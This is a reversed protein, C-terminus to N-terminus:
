ERGGEAVTVTERCADRVIALISELRHTYTHEHQTRQAAREMRRAADTPNRLVQEALEKAEEPSDYLLLENEEFLEHAAEQNDTILVGGSVPVDFLRQNVATPMQFSTANLHVSNRYISALEIYYDVQPHLPIGPALSKWGEDGYLHLGQGSLQNALEKRLERTATLAVASTYHLFQGRSWGELSLGEM